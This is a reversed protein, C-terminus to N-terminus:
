RRESGRVTDEVAEVIVGILRLDSAVRAPDIHGARYEGAHRTRRIRDLNALAEHTVPADLAANAYDIVAQHARPRNRLRFGSLRMHATVAKRAADYGLAYAGNTDGRQLILSANELHRRADNLFAM